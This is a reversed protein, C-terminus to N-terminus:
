LYDKLVEKLFKPELYSNIVKFTSPNQINRTDEIYSIWAGACWSLARLLLFPKYDHVRNKVERGVGQEYVEYFADIEDDALLYNAKWLTTTPALFQTIDQVPDSIVPKEWDILYSNKEGIIFNHSNVETNNVVLWPDAMFKEDTSTAQNKCYAYFVEMIQKMELRPRKSDRFEELWGDAEIVRAQCLADELILHESFPKTDLQHIKSFIDAAIHLDKGYDLPRGELYNMMLVGEKFAKRSNDVFYGRPTVGSKELCKIANYEYEIQNDLNLQSSMNVRFVYKDSNHRIIFNKNYEGQALFDVELRSTFGYTDRIDEQLLYSKIRNIYDSM